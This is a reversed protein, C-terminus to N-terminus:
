AQGAASHGITMRRRARERRLIFLSVVAVWAPLVLVIWDWLTVVLMLVLGLAYGVLVVWRPFAGSRLGVTSLSILFVAAARTSIAFALTYSLARVLDVESASPPGLHLYRISVVLSGTLAATTFISGVFLLGSGFFVTAFFRDEREGILDRVVAIFWLFMIAAFPLLYLSGVLLSWDQGTQFLRGIEADDSSISLPSDRILLLGTTFFAAFLLGAISAAWPARVQATAEDLAAARDRGPVPSRDM